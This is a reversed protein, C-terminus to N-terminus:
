TYFIVADVAFYNEFFWVRKKWTPLSSIKVNFCKEIQDKNFLKQLKQNRILIAFSFITQINESEFRQRVSLGYKRGGKLKKENKFKLKKKETAIKSFFNNSNKM